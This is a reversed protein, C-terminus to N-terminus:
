PDVIGLADVWAGGINFNAKSSASNWIITGEPVSANAPRTGSFYPRAAATAGGWRGGWSILPQSNDGNLIMHADSYDSADPLDSTKYHPLQTSYRWYKGDWIVITRADDIYAIAGRANNGLAPLDGFTAYFRLVGTTPRWESAYRMWLTSDQSTYALAGFGVGTIVPLNSISGYDAVNNVLQWHGNGDNVKLQDNDTDFLLGGVPLGSPPPFQHSPRGEIGSAKTLAWDTGQNVYLSKADKEYILYPEPFINAPPLSGSYVPITSPAFWGVGDSYMVSEISTNYVMMGSNGAALPLSATAFFPLVPSGPPTDDETRTARVWGNKRLIEFDPDNFVDDLDIVSFEKTRGAPIVTNIVGPVNVPQDLLNTIKVKAM